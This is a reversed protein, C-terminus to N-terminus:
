YLWNFNELIKNPVQQRKLWSDNRLNETQILQATAHTNARLINIYKDYFLVPLPAYM